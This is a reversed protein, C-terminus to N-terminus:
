VVSLEFEHDTNKQVCNIRQLVILNLPSM